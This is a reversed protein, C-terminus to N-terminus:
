NILINERVVEKYFPTSRYLDTYWLKKSTLMCSIVEQRDWEIEYLAHRIQDEKRASVEEDVLVLFDWDSDERYDGRARSGYLMLTANPEVAKVTAKVQNLLGEWEQPLQAPM